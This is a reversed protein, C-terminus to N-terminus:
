KMLLWRDLFAPRGNRKHNLACYHAGLAASKALVTNVSNVLVTFKRCKKMGRSTTGREM